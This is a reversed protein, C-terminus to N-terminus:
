IYPPNLAHGSVKPSVLPNRAREVCDPFQEGAEPHAPASEPLSQRHQGFTV